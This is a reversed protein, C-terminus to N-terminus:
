SGPSHSVGSNFVFYCFTELLDAPWRVRDDGDVSVAGM